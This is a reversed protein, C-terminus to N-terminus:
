LRTALLKFSWIISLKVRVLYIDIYIYLPLFKADNLSVTECGDFEAHPPEAHQCSYAYAYSFAYPVHWRLSSLIHILM